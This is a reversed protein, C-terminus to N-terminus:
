DDGTGLADGATPEAQGEEYASPSSRRDPRDMSKRIERYIEAPDPDPRELEIHTLREAPGKPEPLSSWGRRPRARVELLASMDVAAGRDFTLVRGGQLFLLGRDRVV